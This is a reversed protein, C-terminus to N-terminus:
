YLFFRVVFIPPQHLYGNPVAYSESLVAARKNERLQQAQLRRAKKGVLFRHKGTIAKCGIKGPFINYCISM